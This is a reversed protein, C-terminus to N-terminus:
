IDSLIDIGTITKNVDVSPAVDTFSSGAAIKTVNTSSKVVLSRATLAATNVTVVPLAASLVALSLEFLPTSLLMAVSKLISESESIIRIALYRFDSGRRHTELWGKYLESGQMDELM